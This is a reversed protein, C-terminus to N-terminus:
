WIYNWLLHDNVNWGEAGLNKQRFNKINKENHTVMHELKRAGVFTYFKM